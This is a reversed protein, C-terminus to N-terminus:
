TTHAQRSAPGSLSPTGAQIAPPSLALAHALAAQPSPAHTLLAAILGGIHEDQSRAPRYWWVEPGHRGDNRGLERCALGKGCLIGAVTAVTTHTLPRHYNITDRIGTISAWGTANWLAHMIATELPGLGLPSRQQRHSPQSAPAQGGNTSPTM